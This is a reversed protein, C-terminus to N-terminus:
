EPFNFVFGQDALVGQLRAPPAPFPAAKEIAAIVHADFTPNGSSKIIEKKIVHGTKDVLVLAQARLGANILWEPLLWHTYLLQEVQDFYRDYEIQELGTLSNGKSVQNGKVPAEAAVEAAEAEQKIKELAALAKLRSLASEQSKEIKKPDAKKKAAVKPAPKKAEVKKEVKPAPTEQVPPAKPAEAVAPAPKPEVVKDPMGVLDVRIARKIEIPQAPFFTMKLFFLSLLGFHAALSICLPRSLSDTM